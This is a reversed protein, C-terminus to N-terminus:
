GVIRKILDYLLAWDNATTPRRGRYRIGLLMEVDEGSVTTGAAEARNVFELLGDPLNDQPAVTVTEDGLLDALRVGLGRAIKVVSTVSPNVAKGSELQSLYGKTVRCKAELDGLSMGQEERLKRIRAGLSAQEELTM